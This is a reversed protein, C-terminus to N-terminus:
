ELFYTITIDENVAHEHFMKGFHRQILIIKKLSNSLKPNDSVHPTTEGAEFSNLTYRVLLLIATIITTINPKM